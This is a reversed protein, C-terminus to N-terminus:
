HETEEYSQYKLLQNNVGLSGPEGQPVSNKAFSKQM